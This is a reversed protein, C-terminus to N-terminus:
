LCLLNLISSKVNECNAVDTKKTNEARSFVISFPLNFISISYELNILHLFYMSGKKDNPGEEIKM